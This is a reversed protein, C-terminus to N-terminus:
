RPSRAPRPRRASPSARSACAPARPRPGTRRRGCAAAARGARPSRRRHGRRGARHDAVDQVAQALAEGARHQEPRHRHLPLIAGGLDGGRDAAVIREGRAPRNRPRVDDDDGAAAAAELVEPAEVLLDHHAGRGLATDRQDGGDAVLGVGRQDVEHGVAACRRRGGSGLHRDRDAEVEDGREGAELVAAAIRDGAVEHLAALAQAVEAAAQRARLRDDGLPRLPEVAEADAQRQREDGERAVPMEIEAAGGAAEARVQERDAELPVAPPQERGPEAQPGLRHEAAEGPQVFPELGAVGAEGAGAGPQGAVGRAFSVASPRM